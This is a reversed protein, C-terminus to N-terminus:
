TRGSPSAATSRRASTVAFSVWLWHFYQVFFPRNLGLQKILRKANDDSYNTGLMGQVIQTNSGILRLSWFTLFSTTVLLLPALGLRKWLYSM